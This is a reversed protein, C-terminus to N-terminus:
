RAPPKARMRKSLRRSMHSKRRRLRLSPSLRLNRRSLVSTSTAGSDTASSRVLPTTLRWYSIVKGPRAPTRLLVTFPFEQGPGLPAYCVTSESASMLESIGAPHNSDVHGMYDGSVFRVSCGAPWNENGENRLTWTQEFNHNPALISGDPITERVFVGKLEAQPARIPEPIPEPILSAEEPIKPEPTKVTVNAPASESPKVDVITRVANISNSRVAPMTETAKSITQRDGMEPM